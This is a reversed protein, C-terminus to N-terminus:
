RIEKEIRRMFGVICMLVNNEIGVRIHKNFDLNISVALLKGSDDCVVFSLDQFLIEEWMYEVLQAYHKREVLKPDLLKVLESKKM